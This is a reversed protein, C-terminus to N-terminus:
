LEARIQELPQERDALYDISVRDGHEFWFDWQLGAPVILRADGMAIIDVERVSEPFAVDKPLRVAQTTNNKFINTRTM